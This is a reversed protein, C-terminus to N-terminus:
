PMQIDLPQPLAAIAQVLLESARPVDIAVVDWGDDEDHWQHYSVFDGHDRVQCGADPKDGFTMTDTGQDYGREASLPFYTSAHHVTLKTIEETAEVMDYYISFYDWLSGGSDGGPVSEMVLVDDEVYYKVRM